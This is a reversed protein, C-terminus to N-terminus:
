YALCDLLCSFFNEFTLARTGKRCWIVYVHSKLIEVKCYGTAKAEASGPYISACHGDAGTGLLCLDFSPLDLKGKGMVAPAQSSILKAYEDAVQNLTQTPSDESIKHVQSLPVKCKEM